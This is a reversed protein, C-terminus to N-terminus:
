VQNVGLMTSIALVSMKCRFLPPVTENHTRRRQIWWIYWCTVAVVEKLGLSAFGPMVRDQDRFLLELVVLGSRDLQMADDIVALQGLTRWLDRAMDCQFLLHKVDEAAQLCIPCQGSTGIHRNALISKLPILGHLARWLFIKIKGPLKLQWITKWVPNLASTGPLALQSARPGFTHRWQLHYGSKVSYCGNKNYNWAIFDDFGQINIPIELIRKVDVDL